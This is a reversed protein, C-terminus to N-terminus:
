STTSFTLVDVLARGEIFHHTAAVGDTDDHSHTASVTLPSTLSSTLSCGLSADQARM